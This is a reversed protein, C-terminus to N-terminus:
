DDKVELPRVDRSPSVDPTGAMDMGSLKSVASVEEMDDKNAIRSARGLEAEESTEVLVYNGRQDRRQNPLSKSSGNPKPDDAIVLGSPSNVALAGRRSTPTSTINFNEMRSPAESVSVLLHADRQDTTAQHDQGRENIKDDM